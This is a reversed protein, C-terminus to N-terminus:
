RPESGDRGAEQWGLCPTPTWNESTEGQSRWGAERSGRPGAAESCPIRDWGSSVLIGTPWQGDSPVKMQFALVVVALRGPTRALVALAQCYPRPVCGTSM